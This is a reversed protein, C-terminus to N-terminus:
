LLKNMEPVDRLKGKLLLQIILFLINVLDNHPLYSYLSQKQATFVEMFQVLTVFNV